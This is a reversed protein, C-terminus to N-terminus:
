TYAYVYAYTYAYAYACVYAYTYKHTHIHTYTYTHIYIYIYTHIYIYIYVVETSCLVHCVNTSGEALAKFLCNVMVCVRECNAEARPMSSLMTIIYPLCPTGRQYAPRVAVQPAPRARLLGVSTHLWLPRRQENM